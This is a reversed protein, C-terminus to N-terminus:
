NHENQIQTITETVEQYVDPFKNKLKSIEKDSSLDFSTYLNIGDCMSEVYLKSTDTRSVWFKYTTGESSHVVAAHHPASKTETDNNSVTKADRWNGYGWDCGKWATNRSYTYETPKAEIAEEDIAEGDKFTYLTHEETDYWEKIGLPEFYDGRSAFIWGGNYEAIQIPNNHRYLHLIDDQYWAIALSGKLKPLAAELGYKNILYFIIESDVEMDQYSLGEKSRLDYFNSIMGNHVGVIDGHKFPHANRNSVVGTTKARTHGIWNKYGSLDNTVFSRASGTEKFVEEIDKNYIGCSDRGREMALMFLLKIDSQDFEVTSTGGIIGCM